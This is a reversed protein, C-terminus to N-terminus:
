AVAIVGIVGSLPMLWFWTRVDWRPYVFALNLPWLLKAAYFWIAAGAIKFREYWALSWEASDRAIADRQEVVTLVSMAAALVFFPMARVLERRTVRDNQWWIILLMILPLVVTSPKSLLAAAFLILAPLFQKRLWVLLCLFFFLGSQLNKLESVWAVSEVNVPHVAWLAAAFWAGHVNLRRLLLFLLAANTAHLAINVAHYPMPNLGWLRRQTWFTTLTLPYYRSVALSSWIQRLGDPATMAPNRTFHDDDDWVFENHLSPIHTVATLVVLALMALLLGRRNMQWFSVTQSPNPLM